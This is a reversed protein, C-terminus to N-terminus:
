NKGNGYKRVLEVIDNVTEFEYPDMDSENLNIDFEEEIDILLNVMALSDLLLDDTLRDKLRIKKNESVKKIIEKVKETTIM